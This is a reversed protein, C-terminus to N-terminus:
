AAEKFTLLQDRYYEYQKRRATIEAPLEISLDSVLADFKDLIAVIEHQVEPPPVPICIKALSKGSIRRVKTGTIHPRKQSQFLETQFFYAVYKANLSHRFIYADTSIAVNEHGLWAVAKAVAEDDESTTAIVLDGSYAKRLRSSFNPSIFSKTSTAWTSYHTHIQGYHICGTGSETFDSKRIGSGRIFQGLQGLPINPIERNEDFALLKDRYYQYQRRRAELEKELEKELETFADLIKVIERQIELPPLPVKFKKFKKMNVSAFSAANTNNRCWKGLIYGYYFMFRMDIEASRNVKKTLFTFRQNALSDVTLLAHEGITATTAIIISNASFLYGNKVAQPTVHQLSDSLIRGNLRIDDMRFWPITGNTWYDPNKKSPTYGNKIDFIEQLEAFEVGEPCRQAILKEVRNM